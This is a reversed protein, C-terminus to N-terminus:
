LLVTHWNADPGSFHCRNQCKILSTYHSLNACVCCINVRPQWHLHRSQSSCPSCIWVLGIICISFLLFNVPSPVFPFWNDFTLKRVCLKYIFSHTFSPFHWPFQLRSPFLSHQWPLHSTLLDVGTSTNHSTFKHSVYTFCIYSIKLNSVANTM